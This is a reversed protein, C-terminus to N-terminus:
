KGELMNTLYAHREEVYQMLNFKELAEANSIAVQHEALTYELNPDQPILGVILTELEDVRAQMAAPSFQTDLLEQLYGLYTQRHADVALIRDVLPRSDASCTPTHPSAGTAHEATACRTLGLSKNHDWPIFVFRGTDPRHYLYFNDMFGLYGTNDGLAVAVALYRLFADVEFREAIGAAFEAESANNLFDLFDILDAYDNQLPDDENTKQVLGCGDEDYCTGGKAVFYDSKRNGAWTLPCGVLGGLSNTYSECKYLNGAAADNKDGYRARMFRRDVIEVMTYLGLVQADAKVWAFSARQAPVDMAQAVLSFLLQRMLSPDNKNNAFHVRDIGHFRKGGFYNFNVRLSYKDESDGGGPLTPVRLRLGVSSLAEDDFRFGADVYEPTGTALYRGVMVNFGDPTTFSVQAVRGPDYVLDLGDLLEQLSDPKGGGCASLALAVFLTPVLLRFTNKM